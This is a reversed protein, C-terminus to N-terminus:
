LGLYFGKELVEEIGKLRRRTSAYDSAMVAAVLYNSLLMVSLLSDKPLMSQVHCCLFVDGLHKVADYAPSTFLIVTVGKSKLFSLLNSLMKQYRPFMYSICVDGEKAGALEEPYIGGVGSVLQVRDRVQGLYSAIYHSVGFTSRSGLIYIRQADIIAKVAAELQERTVYEVTKKLAHIEANMMDTLLREKNINRYSDEYREPLTVKKMLGRQIKQQLQTYGQFDLIRAFRIVSTTSVQAQEAMEELTIFALKDYHEIIFDAIKRQTKTFMHYNDNVKM